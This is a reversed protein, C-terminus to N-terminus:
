IMSFANFGLLDSYIQPLLVKFILICYAPGFLQSKRCFENGGSILDGEVKIQLFKLVRLFISIFWASDM